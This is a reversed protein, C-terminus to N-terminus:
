RKGHRKTEYEKIMDKIAYLLVIVSLSLGIDFLKFWNPYLVISVVHLVLVAWYIVFFTPLAKKFAQNM